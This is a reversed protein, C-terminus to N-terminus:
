RGHTQYVSEVRGGEKAKVEVSGSEKRFTLVAGQVRNGQADQAVAPEGALNTVGSKPDDVARTGSGRRGTARDEFTVDGELVTREVRGGADMRCEGRRGHATQAGRRAAVDGEFVATHQADSWHMTKASVAIREEGRAGADAKATRGAVRVSGAADATRDADRLVIRDAMLSDDEQWLAASGTLEATRARDDLVIRDARARTPAKSSATFSPASTRGPGPLLIARADGAATVANRREDLDVQRGLVRGRASLLEADESASGFFSTLGTAASYSAAPSKASGQATSGAVHGDFRAAALAGDAGFQARATDGAIWELLPAGNAGAVTRELRVGGRADASVARGGRFALAIAPALLRREPQGASPPATVLAPRGTLAVAALAGQADFTSRGEAAKWTGRAAGSAFTGSANGSAVASEVRGDAALNVALTDCALSDGGRAARVSGSFTVRADDVRYEAGDAALSDFAAGPAGAATVPGTLTLVRRQTGYSGSAARGSLAGRSFELPGPIALVNQEPDFRVLAARVATGQRDTAVVTGKLHMARTRPDYDAADSRVTLPEGKPSFITLVVRELGYWTSPLGAGAAFGVTRDAHVSFRTRGAITESYDFGSLLTTPQGVGAPGETAAASPPAERPPRPVRRFTAALVLALAAAAALLIRQLRTTKM